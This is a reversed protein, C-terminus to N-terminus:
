LLFQLVVLVVVVSVNVFPRDLRGVESGVGAMAGVILLFDLAVKELRPKPLPPLMELASPPAVEPPPVLVLFPRRPSNPWM